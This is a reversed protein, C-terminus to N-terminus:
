EHMVRHEREAAPVTVLTLTYGAAGLAEGIGGMLQPYVPHSFLESPATSFVLGVAFSRRALLNRAFFSAQFGNEEIVQQIRARTKEGVGPQKNIVRSVTGASVSALRAIDHITVKKDRPDHVVPMLVVM